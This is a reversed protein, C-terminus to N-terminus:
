LICATHGGPYGARGPDTHSIASQPERAGGMDSPQQPARGIAEQGSVGARPPAPPGGSPRQAAAPPPQRQQQLAHCGLRPGGAASPASQASPARAPPGPMAAGPTPHAPYDQPVGQVGQQSVIYYAYCQPLCPSFVVQMCRRQPQLGLHRQGPMQAPYVRWMLHLHECERARNAM